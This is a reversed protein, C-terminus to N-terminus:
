CSALLHNYFSEQGSELANKRGDLQVHPRRRYSIMMLLDRDPVLLIWPVNTRSQM